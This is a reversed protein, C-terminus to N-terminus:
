APCSSTPSCRTSPATSRRGLAAEGSRVRTVKHGLEGLLTEAFEGVEENDEVLLIRGSRRMEPGAYEEDEARAILRRRQLPPLLTM